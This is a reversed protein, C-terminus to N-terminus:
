KTEEVRGKEIEKKGRGRKSQWTVMPKMKEEKNNERRVLLLVSMM